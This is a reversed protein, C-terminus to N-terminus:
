TSTRAKQVRTVWGLEFMKFYKDLIEIYTLIFDFIYSYMKHKYKLKFSTM